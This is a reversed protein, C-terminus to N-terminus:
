SGAPWRSGDEEDASMYEIDDEEDAEVIYEMDEDDSSLYEIDEDNHEPKKIVVDDEVVDIIALEDGIEEMLNEAQQKALEEAIDLRSWEATDDLDIIDLDDEEELLEEIEEEHRNFFSKM